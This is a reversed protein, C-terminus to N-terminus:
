LASVRRVVVCVHRKPRRREASELIGRLQGGSVPKRLLGQKLLTRMRNIPTGGDIETSCENGRLILQDIHVAVTITLTLGCSRGARNWCAGCRLYSNSTRWGQCDGQIAQAAGLSWRHRCEQPFCMLRCRYLPPLTAADSCSRCAPVHVKYPRMPGATTENPRLPHPTHRSMSWLTSDQM